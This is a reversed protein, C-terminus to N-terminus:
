CIYLCDNCVSSVVQVHHHISTPQLSCNCRKWKTQRNTILLMQIELSVKNTTRCSDLAPQTWEIRATSTRLTPSLSAFTGRGTHTAYFSPWNHISYNSSKKCKTILYFPGLRCVAFDVTNYLRLINECVSLFRSILKSNDRTAYM